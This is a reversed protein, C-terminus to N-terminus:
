VDFCGRSWHRSLIRASCVGPLRVMGTLAEDLLGVCCGTNMVDVSTCTPAPTGPGAVAVEASAIM